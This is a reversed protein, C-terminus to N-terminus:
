SKAKRCYRRTNEKIANKLLEDVVVRIVNNPTRVAIPSGEPMTGPRFRLEILISAKDRMVEWRSPGRKEGLSNLASLLIWSIDGANRSFVKSLRGLDQRFKQAKKLVSRAVSETHRLERKLEAIEVFEFQQPGDPDLLDNLPVQDKFQQQEDPVPLEKLPVEYLHVREEVFQDPDIASTLRRLPTAVEEHMFHAAQFAVTRDVVNRPLEM